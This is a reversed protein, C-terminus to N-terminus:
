RNWPIKYIDIYREVAQEITPFYNNEGFRSFLGYKKLRDKVPDKMEAFCLEIGENELELDLEALLDSATIDIDTLPEAAVVVWKTETTASQIAQRIHERFIDANAFFLPADWRFLVLGPICRAEPYRSIDHYSRLGDVHGLVADYPRWARWIFTALAISVSIFIGEIANFFAVGFFCILSLVFEDKRLKYLRLVGSVEVLGLVASIVVAALTAQPLHYLLDPVFILLMSISFAGVLGTLQTKAGALEAVSSRSASSSISFGQFFGSAINAVGLAIIEQNSNVRSGGRLALSRSLVSTDAFSVLSIALAGGLLAKLEALSPSALYFGPLGQPLSGIVSIGASSSLDFYAALATTAVVAILIGPVRPARIRFFQIVALSFCGLALAVPNTLGNQLGNYLDITEQWLNDSSVSFGFLKPLQGVIVTLAIGNLYGYRIPKSLLDTVFGLKLFGTLICFLGSFIALTGALSVAREPNGAALPAITALILAALSSDPGLIMIRSPGFVAYAILPVITAYLGYIAPLGAAEAYGMGVPVLIASLVIGALLDDKLWQLKYHCLTTFGPVWCLNASLNNKRMLDM